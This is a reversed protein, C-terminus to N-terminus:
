LLVVTCCCLLEKGDCLSVLYHFGCGVSKLVSDQYLTACVTVVQDALTHELKQQLKIGVLDANSERFVVNFHQVHHEVRQSIIVELNRPDAKLYHVVQKILSNSVGDCLTDDLSATCFLLM